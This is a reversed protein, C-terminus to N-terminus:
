WGPPMYNTIFEEYNGVGDGGRKGFLLFNERELVGGVGQGGRVM